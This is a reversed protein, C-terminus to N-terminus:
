LNKCRSSGKSTQGSTSRISPAGQRKQKLKAVEGGQRSAQDFLLRARGPEAQGSLYKSARQAEAGLDAGLRSALAWHTLAAGDIGRARRLYFAKGAVLKSGEPVTSNFVEGVQGLALPGGAGKEMFPGWAAVGGFGDFRWLPGLREPLGRALFDMGGARFNFNGFAAAPRKALSAEKLRDWLRDSGQASKKWWREGQPAFFGTAGGQRALAWALSADAIQGALADLGAADLKAVQSADLQGALFSAMDVAHGEGAVRLASATMEGEGVSRGFVRRAHSALASEKYAASGARAKSLCGFADAFAESRIEALWMDRWDLESALGALRARRALRMREDIAASIEPGWTSVEGIWREGLAKRERAHGEEHRYADAPSLTDAFFKPDSATRIVAQRSLPGLGWPSLSADVRAVMSTPEWGWLRSEMGTQPQDALGMTRIPALGQAALWAQEARMAKLPASERQAGWEQAISGLQGVVVFGMLAWGTWAMADGVRSLFKKKPGLGARDLLADM